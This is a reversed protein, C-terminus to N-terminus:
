RALLLAVMWNTQSGTITSYSSSMDLLIASPVSFNHEGQKYLCVRGQGPTRLFGQVLVLLHPLHAEIDQMKSDKSARRWVREMGKRGEGKKREGEGKEKREKERERGRRGKERERRGVLYGMLKGEVAVGLVGVTHTDM